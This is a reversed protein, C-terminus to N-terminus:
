TARDPASPAPATARGSASSRFYGRAARSQAQCHTKGARRRHPRAADALPHATVCQAMREGGV